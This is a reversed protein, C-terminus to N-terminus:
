AEKAPSHANEGPLSAYEHNLANMVAAQGRPDLQRFKFIMDIEEPTFEPRRSAVCLQSDTSSSGIDIPMDDVQDLLQMMTMGMSSALKQLQPLTPTVPKKTSPNMGNELMSVYGNSLGCRIAFQRQSLGHQTRYHCILDGLKM